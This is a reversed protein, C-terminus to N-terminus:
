WIDARADEGLHMPDGPGVDFAAHFEPMNRLPGNVRFRPPAHPNTQVLVRLGEDRLKSRWGQAWGLFFRQEATFGDITQPAPRGALSRKWGHYAITLGGLDGINEGLTLRGNVNLGPLAEFGDFQAVLRGTRADFRQRDEDTWWNRLHGAADYKSGEDDFGHSIEHGIVAGMAGYNVADDQSEGFFPPQLIGAPFCIENMGPNYYANVTQPSMGWEGRDVPKGIKDLERQVAFARARLVNAAWAGQDVVLASYDRWAGPYGIKTSIAELKALAQTRTEEGM